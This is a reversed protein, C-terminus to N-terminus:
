RESVNRGAYDDLPGFSRGGGCAADTENGARSSWNGGVPAVTAPHARVWNAIAGERLRGLYDAWQQMMSRREALRQAKNCAARVKNRETHALQLEIM